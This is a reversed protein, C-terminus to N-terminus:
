KGFGGFSGGTIHIGSISGVRANPSGSAVMGVGSYSAYATAAFLTSLIVVTLIVAMLRSM